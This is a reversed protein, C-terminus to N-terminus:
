QPRGCEVCHKSGAPTSRHCSACQRVLSVGCHWCFCAGPRQSKGCEICQGREIRRETMKELSFLRKQFIYVVFLSVGVALAIALYYWVAVLNFAELWEILRKLLIKPVLDYVTSVIRAFIPIFAIVVLHSSVLIQVDHGKRLSVNNWAFLVGLLPLLFVLQMALKKLPYWFNASRLDQRLADRAPQELRDIKEWLLAVKRNENIKLGLSKLEGTLANLSDTKAQVDQRIQDVGAQGQDQKQMTELLKTDYAGKASGVRRQLDMLQRNTRAFGEFVPRLESDTKIQEILDRYPACALHVAKREEDIRVPSNAYANVVAALKETRNTLNWDGDLVVSRCFPPIFDDPASLQRTHADLGNFISVLVFMDLFVIVALAARGLPRKEFRILNARITLFKAKTLDFLNM